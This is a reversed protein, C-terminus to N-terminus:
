QGALRRIREESPLQRDSPADLREASSKGSAATLEGNARRAAVNEAPPKAPLSVTHSAAKSARNSLGILPAPYFGIGVVAVTCIIMAVFAGSGGDGRPVSRPVRFYMVAVIRLYYAAAVAANVVGVVALGILWMQLGGGDQESRVGLASSFLTLKGWFGALPPIGALSFMFVGLALGAWPHTRGVGALDDVAELQRDVRGLYTLAAFTGITALGYVALYFLMAGVGDFQRVLEAGGGAAFGVALGILMYGGHAISSYALLRRINDQWLALVNGVTMTVAALVLSLQWGITEQGPMAVAVIRVLAVFGAIKPLVALLGANGHTTGEYVDPAYFHFPVAAIKFALGAFILVVALAALRDFAAPGGAEAALAQYVDPLRTSGAVGYLFSFGYLLVASALISLFFYKATSEQNARSRRGLYLLVYTPISVLELGGFLLVLDQASAVLMLGAVVILLTGFVEPAQGASAARSMLLVFLLGLGVVFWRIYSSLVDGAVPGILVGDTRTDALAAAAVLLGGAAIWSWVGRSDFFAGAVYIFTAVAVIVIEPLLYYITEASM